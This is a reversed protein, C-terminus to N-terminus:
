IPLAISAVEKSTINYFVLVCPTCRIIASTGAIRFICIRRHISINVPPAIQTEAAICHDAWLNIQLANLAIIEHEIVIHRQSSTFVVSSHRFYLAALTMGEHYSDHSLAIGNPRRNLRPLIRCQELNRRFHCLLFYIKGLIHILNYAECEICEAVAGSRRVREAMHNVIHAQTM